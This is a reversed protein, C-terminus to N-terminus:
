YKIGAQTLVSMDVTTPGLGGSPAPDWAFSSLIKLTPSRDL